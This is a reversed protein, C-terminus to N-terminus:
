ILTGRGFTDLTAEGNLIVNANSASISTPLSSSGFLIYATGSSAAEGDGVFAGAIVDDFGDDNIDAKGGLGGSNGLQDSASAGSLKVNAASASISSSLTSSGFFIYAAGSSAGGSDEFQAGVFADAYGDNNVDSFAVSRGLQDGGTVGTFKVNAASADISAAISSSGYFVYAAGANGAGTDDLYAGVLADEFGDNNIDGSTVSWGFVDSADEGILKVNAAGADISGALTRSGFFIYAAGAGNGGSDEGWAGVIVDHFGDNNVDGNALSGGFRDSALEGILKVNAVSADIAAPLSRAGYFIYTAGAASGGSDEGEAGIIVDDFGDLNVDASTVAIGFGDNSVEGILKVNALSADISTALSSSGYFIYVAGEPNGGGAGGVSGVIIDAIGDGNIDGAAGPNGFFDGAAEGILKISANSANISSALSTSGYFVYAAGADTGGTANTDAGVLIDAIGDHNFDNKVPKIIKGGKPHKVCSNMFTPATLLLVMFPVFRLYAKTMNDKCM